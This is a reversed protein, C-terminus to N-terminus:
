TIRWRNKKENERNNERKNISKIKLGNKLLENLNTTGFICVGFVKKEFVCVVEYHRNRLNAISRDMTNYEVVIHNGGCCGSSIVVVVDVTGM